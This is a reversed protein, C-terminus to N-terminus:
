FWPEEENLWRQYDAEPQVVISGQMRYHGLGCLEACALEFTGTRTPTFQTRGHFGPILDQKVRFQPVTFSHIVDLARLRLVVMRDVPLNLVGRRVIDDKAAPDKKDLGVPNRSDNVSANDTKGLLGDPGPHHILWEFQKGVVEITVADPAPEGYLETFAPLSIFLVGGEAIGCMVLVPALAWRWELRRSAHPSGKDETGAYRLVFWALVGHGILFLIGTAVLLYHITADIARGHSSALEPLKGEAWFGYVILLATAVFLLALGPSRARGRASGVPAPSSTM